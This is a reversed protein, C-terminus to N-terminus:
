PCFAGCSPICSICCIHPAPSLWQLPVIGAYVWCFSSDAVPSDPLFCELGLFYSRFSSIGLKNSPCCFPWHPQFSTFPPLTTPSSFVSVLHSRIVSAHMEVVPVVLGLLSHLGLHMASGFQSTSQTHSLKFLGAIHMLFCLIKSM